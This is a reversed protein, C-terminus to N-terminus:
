PIVLEAEESVVMGSSIWGSWGVGGRLRATADTSGSDLVVVKRAFGSGIADLCGALNGAENLTPIVITLDLPDSTSAGIGGDASSGVYPADERSRLSEGSTDPKQM